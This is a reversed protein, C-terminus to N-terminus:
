DKSDPEDLASMGKQPRPRRGTQRRLHRPSVSHAPPVVEGHDISDKLREVGTIPIPEKPETCFRDDVMSWSGLLGLNPPRGKTLVESGQHFGGGVAPDFLLSAESSPIKDACLNGCGM